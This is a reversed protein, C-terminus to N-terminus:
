VEEVRRKKGKPSRRPSRRLQNEASERLARGVDRLPSSAEEESGEEGLPPMGMGEFDGDEEDDTMEIEPVEHRAEEDETGKSAEKSKRVKREKGRYKKKSITYKEWAEALATQCQDDKLGEEWVATLSAMKDVGEQSRLDKGLEKKIGEGSTYRKPPKEFKDKEATTWSDKDKFRALEPGELGKLWLDHKWQKEMNMINWVAHSPQAPKILHPVYKKGLNKKLLDDIRGRGEGAAVFDGLFECLEKMRCPRRGRKLFQTPGKALAELDIKKGGRDWAPQSM